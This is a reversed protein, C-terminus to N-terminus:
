LLAPLEALSRVAEVGGPAPATARWSCRGSGPRALERWTTRSRTAWTCAGRRARAGALELAREFIARIPSPRASRPRPSWATWTSWCARAAAALGAALLGLQEGGRAAHGRGRLEALAPAVDPFPVFELSASCRGRPGDRPRARPLELASTMRRRAATACTTSGSADSGELHHELYYAIEARSRPRRASRTWRSAASRSCRAAAAAGAAAARGAHRARRAAGRPEVLDLALHRVAATFLGLGIASM